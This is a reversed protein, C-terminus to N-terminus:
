NKNLNKNNIFIIEEDHNEENNSEHNEENNSENIMENVNNINNVNNVNNKIIFFTYTKKYKIL